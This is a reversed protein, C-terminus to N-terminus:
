KMYSLKTCISTPVRWNSQNFCFDTQFYNELCGFIGSDSEDSDFLNNLCYLDIFSLLKSLLTLLLLLLVNMGWRFKSLLRNCAIVGRVWDRECVLGIREILLIDISSISCNNMSRRLHSYFPNQFELKSIMRSDHKFMVINGACENRGNISGISYLTYTAVYKVDLRHTAHQYRLGLM